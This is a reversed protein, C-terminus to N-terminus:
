GKPRGNIAGERMSQAQATKMGVDSAVQAAQMQQAQAQANARLTRINARSTEDRTMRETATLETVMRSTEDPDLNDLIDPIAQAAAMHIDWANTISQLQETRMIRNAPSIYQIDYVKQGTEMAKIVTEPLYIPSIGNALLEAEKESGRIVGLLGKDFLINVSTKILPSFMETEQRKFTSSLGEGRMRDRILTEGYTMKAENNFDMLRDIFFAKSISQSLDEILEFAGRTDGVDFLTGVPSKEGMGSMNFISLGGPSSDVLAPGLAGNDLLYLPPDLQKEQARMLYEWVINLRMIAPMAFMAPSRGYVEGLAKLFRSVIVPMQAYGSEKLIKGSDFEFYLSSIPLNRNGYGFRGERRPEIAQMVRVKDEFVGQEYRELTQKGVNDKGFEDVCQRVTYQNDLFVTDVVGDRNEAIVLNKVNVASYRLPQNLEETDEVHIGSIGFGTQDLMYEDVSTALNAESADMIDHAVETIDQYYKKEVPGNPVNRPRALRFSRAGNPWLNGAIASAATRNAEPAVSSFLQETLFEGPQGSTLFNQKRTMVYEGVLQYMSFWPHKIKYLEDYRKKLMMVRNMNQAM